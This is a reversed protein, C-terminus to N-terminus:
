LGASGSTAYDPLPIDKGLRPDLIKLQIKKM